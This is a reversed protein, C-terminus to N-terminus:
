VEKLYMEYEGKTFWDVLPKLKGPIDWQIKVDWEEPYRGMKDIGIVTGKTEEHVGSFGRLSVVIKGIKSSAEQHSFRQNVTKLSVNM